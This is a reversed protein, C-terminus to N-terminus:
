EPTARRALEAISFIDVPVRSSVDRAKSSVSFRTLSAKRWEGRELFVAAKDLELM